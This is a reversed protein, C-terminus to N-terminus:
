DLEAPDEIDLMDFESLAALHKKLLRIEQQMGEMRVLLHRIADIGAINISLDYHWRVYRELNPLQSLLLHPEGDVSQIDILGEEALLEVFSTEIDCKRCYESVIILETQM